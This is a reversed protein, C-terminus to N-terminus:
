QLEEMEFDDIPWMIMPTDKGVYAGEINFDIYELADAYSMGDDSLADILMEGDYILRDIKENGDWCNTVGIICDDYGEIKLM